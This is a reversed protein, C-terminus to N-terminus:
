ADSIQKLRINVPIARTVVGFCCDGMVNDHWDNHLRNTIVNDIKVEATEGSSWTRTSFCLEACPSVRSCLIHVLRHCKLLSPIFMSVFTAPVKGGSVPADMFVAGMKEAAVAMERSVAPDITSSDILLTGKKVKRFLAFCFANVSWTYCINPWAGRNMCKVHQLQSTETKYNNLLYMLTAHIHSYYIISVQPHWKSRHLSWDCKSQLPANHPHPRSKRGRRSSLRSGLSQLWFQM